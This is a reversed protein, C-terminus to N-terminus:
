NIKLLKEVTGRFKERIQLKLIEFIFNVSLVECRAKYGTDYGVLM